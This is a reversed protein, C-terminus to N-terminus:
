YDFRSDLHKLRVFKIYNLDKDNAQVYSLADGNKQSPSVMCRGLLTLSLLLPLKDVYPFPGGIQCYGYFPVIHKGRDRKWVQGWIKAERMFRQFNFIVKLSAINLPFSRVRKSQEDFKMTRIAKIDVRERGLYIGEYIDMSATGRVAVDGVKKVEGSQLYFDPLLEQFQSQFQYLNTSLGEHMKEANQKNEGM